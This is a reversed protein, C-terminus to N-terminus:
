DIPNNQEKEYKDVLDKLSELYDKLDQKNVGHEPNSLFHNPMENLYKTLEPFEDQIKKTILLIDKNLGNQSEM